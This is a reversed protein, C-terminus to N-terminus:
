IANLIPSDFHPVSKSSFNFTFLSTTSFSNLKKLSNNYNGSSKKPKIKLNNM